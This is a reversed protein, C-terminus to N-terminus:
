EAERLFLSRLVSLREGIEPPTEVSLPFHLRRAAGELIGFLAESVADALGESREVSRHLPDGVLVFPFSLLVLPAGHM